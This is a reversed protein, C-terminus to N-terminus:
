EGWLGCVLLAGGCLLMGLMLYGWPGYKSLGRTFNKRINGPSSDIVTEVYFTKNYDNRTLTFSTAQNIETAVAGEVTSANVDLPRLGPFSSQYTRRFFDRLAPLWQPKRKECLAPNEDSDFENGSPCNQFGDCVLEDAICVLKKKGLKM